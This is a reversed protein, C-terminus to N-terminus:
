LKETFLNQKAPLIFQLKNKNIVNHTHHKEEIEM